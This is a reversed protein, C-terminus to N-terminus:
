ASAPPKTGRFRARTWSAVRVLGLTMAGLALGALVDAAAATVGGAVGTALSRTWAHLPHIGHLVIGGGVMFMAFTGAISLLKMLLPATRLLAAGLRQAARNRRRALHLGLDDLKVIVAVIGYVGVTMLLGVASLVTARVAFPVGAVSGLAITIIEASLVFDTRIAGRIKVAEVEALDAPAVEAVVEPRHVIKEFGEFCLYTGGAMLLLPVLGPALASFALAAPILILKNRLSGKAVAWVVPLEREAQVGSVQHANLALDDGLVGATKRAAVKTMLAMDDLVSTIDDILALLSTGAM